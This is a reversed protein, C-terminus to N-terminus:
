VAGARARRLRGLREVREQADLTHRALPNAALRALGIDEGTLTCYGFSGQAIRELAEDIAGLLRRHRAETLVQLRCEREHDARDAEDGPARDAQGRLASLTCRIEACLTERMQLLRAHFEAPQRPNMYPEAPFPWHTEINTESM